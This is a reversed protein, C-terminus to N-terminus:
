LYQLSQACPIMRECLKLMNVDRLTGFDLVHILRILLHKMKLLEYRWM